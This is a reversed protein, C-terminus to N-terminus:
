YKEEDIDSYFNVINVDELNLLTRYDDKISCWTSNISVFANLKQFTKQKATKRIQQTPELGRDSCKM